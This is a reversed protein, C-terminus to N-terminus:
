QDSKEGYVVLLSGNVEKETNKRIIKNEFALEVADTLYDNQEEMSMLKLPNPLARFFGLFEEQSHFTFDSDEIFVKVNVYGIAEMMDKITGVPDVDTAYHFPYMESRVPVYKKWRSKEVLQFITSMFPHKNVLVHFCGGGPTLLQYINEFAKRQDAIWMLLYASFVYDFREKNKEEVKATLDLHEFSVKPKGAFRMKAQQLMDRSIDMCVFQSFDKPLQPYIFKYSLDGTGCGIDAIKAEPKWKLLSKHKSLYASLHVDRIRTYKNLLDIKFDTM